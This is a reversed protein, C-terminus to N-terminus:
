FLRFPSFEFHLKQPIKFEPTNITHFNTENKPAKSFNVEDKQNNSFTVESQSIGNKNFKIEDNQLNLDNKMM